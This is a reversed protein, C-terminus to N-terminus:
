MSSFRIEIFRFVPIVSFSYISASDKSVSPLEATATIDPPCVLKMLIARLPSVIRSLVM